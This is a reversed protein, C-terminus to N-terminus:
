AEPIAGRDFHYRLINFISKCVSNSNLSLFITRYRKIRGNKKVVRNRPLSEIPLLKM